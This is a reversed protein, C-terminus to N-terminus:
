YGLRGFIRREAADCWTQGSAVRTRDLGIVRALYNAVSMPLFGKDSPRSGRTHFFAGIEDKFEDITLPSLSQIVPKSVM